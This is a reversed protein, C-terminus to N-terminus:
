RLVEKSVIMDKFAKRSRLSAVQHIEDPILCWPWWSLVTCYYILIKMFWQSVVFQFPLFMNQMFGDFWPDCVLVGTDICLNTTVM